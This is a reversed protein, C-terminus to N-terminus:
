AVPEYSALWAVLRRCADKANVEESSRRVVVLAVLRVLRTAFAVILRGSQQRPDAASPDNDCQLSIDDLHPVVHEVKFQGSNQFTTTQKGVM